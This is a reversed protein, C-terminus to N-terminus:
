ADCHDRRMEDHFIHSQYRDRLGPCGIRGSAEPFRQRAPVTIYVVGAIAPAVGPEVWFKAVPVNRFIEGVDPHRNRDQLAGFVLISRDALDLDRLFFAVARDIHRDHRAGSMRRMAVRRLCREIRDGIKHSADQIRVLARPSLSRLVDVAASTPRSRPRLRGTRVHFLIGYKPTEPSSREWFM